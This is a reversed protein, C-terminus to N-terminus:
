QKTNKDVVKYKGGLKKVKSQYGSIDNKEEIHRELSSKSGTKIPEYKIYHRSTKLKAANKNLEPSVILSTKLRSNGVFDGPSPSMSGRLSKKDIDTNPHSHVDILGTTKHPAKPINTGFEDGSSIHTTKLKGKPHDKYLTVGKETNDRKSSDGVKKLTKALVTNDQPHNMFSERGIYTDAKISNTKGRRAIQAADVYGRKNPDNLPNSKYKNIEKVKDKINSKYYHMGEKVKKAMYKRDDKMLQLTHDSLNHVKKGLGGLIEAKKLQTFAKRAANSFDALIYM